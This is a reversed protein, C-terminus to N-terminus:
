PSAACRLGLNVNTDDPNFWNRNAASVFNGISNWSGGRLVRYYDSEPGTPNESPSNNYYDDDYWDAVWEWVNGAMDYLGFGNPSFSKLPVTRGDCNSYQTGNEAGIECVPAEDGWPYKKGELGGRAAKEWEAETPLRRGAWQCYARAGYWSVEVAPHDGYGSVPRWDGGSQEILVDDDDVDLWTEGGEEQNGEEDLFEAFQANTVEHQDIWYADLTVSHVPSEDSGGDESGMLFEGAPIYVQVMGDVESVQTAGVRLAPTQTPQPTNTVTPSPTDTPPLTNTPVPTETPILTVPIALKEPGGLLLVIALAGILLFGGVSVWGGYRQWWNKAPIDVPEAQDPKSGPESERSPPAEREPTLSPEAPPAPIRGSEDEAEPQVEESESAEEPATAQQLANLLDLPTQYRMDPKKALCKLVVAELEKSIEPKYARPSPPKLNVQEWRVKESTSGTTQAYEGTFPREGGTLMEFLVVGLAYIDTQPTPNLGRAQEPAMYAPTGAGVMTATAADTMRAIGFDALMPKGSRHFLINSPKLDCHVYGESHAYALAACVSGLVSRITSMPLPGAADFIKHKLSEGSVFDLLMFAQRGHQELGYFRVINPHQLKALTDAERKFRRIFVRDLAMDEYLLKMALFTMRHNDWVKYVEAMGGRGIFAEVRYRDAIINGVLDTM